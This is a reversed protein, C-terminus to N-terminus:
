SVCRDDFTARLGQANLAEELMPRRDFLYMGNEIPTAMSKMGASPATTHVGMAFLQNGGGARHWLPLEAPDIGGGSGIRTRPMLLRAIALTRAWDHLSTQPHADLPTDPRATFRSLMLHRIGGGNRLELLHDIRDAESEGLGMMMISRVEFGQHRADALLRRRAALSDGPKHQHFLSENVTELSATIGVVGLLKLRALGEATLCGGVNIELDIDVGEARIREVIDIVSEDYDGDRSGGVLLARRVGREALAAAGKAMMSRHLVRARWWDCYECRPQLACALIPGMTAMYILSNGFIRDRLRAAVGFLTEAVAPDAADAYIRLAEERRLTRGEFIESDLHAIDM